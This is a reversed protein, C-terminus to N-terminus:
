GFIGWILILALVVAIYVGWKKGKLWFMLGALVALLVVCLDEADIGLGATVFRVIGKVGEVTRAAFGMAESGVDYEEDEGTTNESANENGLVVPAILLIMVFM